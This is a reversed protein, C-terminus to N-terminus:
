EEDVQNIAVAFLRARGNAGVRLCDVVSIEIEQTEPDFVEAGFNKYTQREGSLNDVIGQTVAFIFGTHPDKVIRSNGISGLEFSRSGNEDVGDIFGQTNLFIFNAVAVQTALAVAVIALIRTWARATRIM